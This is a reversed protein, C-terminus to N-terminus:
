YGTPRGPCGGGGPDRQHGVGEQRRQVHGHLVPDELLVPEVDLEHLQLTAQVSHGRHHRAVGLVGVDAQVVQGGQHAPGGVTGVPTHDLHPEGAGSQGGHVRCHTVQQADFGVFSRHREVGVRASPQGGDGAMDEAEELANGAGPSM